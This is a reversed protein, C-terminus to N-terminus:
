INSIIFFIHYFSIQLYGAKLQIDVNKRNETYNKNQRHEAM